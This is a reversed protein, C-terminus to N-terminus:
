YVDNFMISEWCVIVGIQHQDTAVKLVVHPGFLHRVLISVCIVVTLQEQASYYSVYAHNLFFFEYLDNLVHKCILLM